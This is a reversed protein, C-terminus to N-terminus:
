KVLKSLEDLRIREGLSLSGMGEREVKELLRDLERQREPSLGNIEKKKGSGNVPTFMKKTKGSMLLVPHKVMVYLFILTPVLLAAIIWYNFEYVNYFYAVTLVLGAIAGGLHAEHGINGHQSKIGFITYLIFLVGFIWSPIYLGPLFILGIGGYPELVISAYIVGSVAGSAGVARYDSHNRHIYLALANGAVMTILYMTAFEIENFYAPSILNVSFTYLAYMNFGFHMWNVHLFGSTIMRFWDRHVLVERPNFLNKNFFTPNQFGQYSLWLTVGIIIYLVM